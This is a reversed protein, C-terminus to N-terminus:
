VQIEQVEQVNGVESSEELKEFRGLWSFSGLCYNSTNIHGLMSKAVLGDVM